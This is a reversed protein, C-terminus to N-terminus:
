KKLDALVARTSPNLNKVLGTEFVLEGILSWVQQTSYAYEINLSNYLDFTAQIGELPNDFLFKQDAVYVNAIVNSEGVLLIRPQVPVKLKRCNDVFQQQLQDASVVDQM